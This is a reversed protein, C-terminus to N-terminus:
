ESLSPEPYVDFSNKVCTTPIIGHALIEADRLARVLTELEITLNPPRPTGESSPPQKAYQALFHGMRGPDVVGLLFDPLGDHQYPPGLSIPSPLMQAVEKVPDLLRLESPLPEQIEIEHVYAPDEPTPVRESSLMAYHWAVAYSRTLSIFPSNVTSRAIHLMQRTTTPTMEPDRAVFGQEMPDSLYWYTNIGAGRYFIAM